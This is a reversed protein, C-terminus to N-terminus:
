EDELVGFDHVTSKFDIFLINVYTFKSLGFKDSFYEGEKSKLNIGLTVFKENQLILHKERDKGSNTHSNQRM